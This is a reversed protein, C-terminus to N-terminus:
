IIIQGKDIARVCYVEKGGLLPLTIFSKTFTTQQLTSFLYSNIIGFSLLLMLELSFTPVMFKEM